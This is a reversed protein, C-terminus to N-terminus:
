LQPEQVSSNEMMHEILTHLKLNIAKIIQFNHDMCFNSIFNLFPCYHFLYSYCLQPEQANCKEIFLEILTDLKSNIAKIAQFNHDLFFILSLILLPCYNFFIHTASKHNKHM